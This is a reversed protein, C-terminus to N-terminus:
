KSFQSGLLLCTLHTQNGLNCFTMASTESVSRISGSEAGYQMYLEEINVLLVDM